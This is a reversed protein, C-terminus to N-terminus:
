TAPLNSKFILTNTFLSTNIQQPKKKLFFFHTKYLNYKYVFLVEILPVM